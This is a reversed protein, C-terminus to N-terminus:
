KKAEEAPEEAAREKKIVEPESGGEAEGDASVEEKIAHCVAVILDGDDVIKVGAPLVLDRVHVSEDLKLSNVNHVIDSPIDTVVCEVEVESLVQQLVGGEKEGAPEGKLTIGVNVRVKENLDVRAFDIHIINTGLHDYQVDKLLANESKGAIKLEFVHAGKDISERFPKALVAVNVAEQKHGYVIAPLKGAARLRRTARTGLVPRVDADLMIPKNAM